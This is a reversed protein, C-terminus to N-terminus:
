ANRASRLFEGPTAGVLRKFHRSFQSQDSFGASAAVEALSFDSDLQLLQKAREVRRTLVYQHPPLGTAAKFQRAFHFPSLHAAAAMQELSLGALHAEVFDTVARLKRQPLTGQTRLPPVRHSALNRILHIALLNALSEAALRDGAAGATLEENVALMATRLAPIDLGDLPPLSVRAPDLECAEAAVRGVLGPELFVHLSDSHRSWRWRASSGAPVLLISGAPPPARRRVEEYHAEFDKPAHLLLLLSHHTLPPQIAENPPQNRYRLAELGTWQLRDSAAFTEGPFQKILELPRVLTSPKDLETTDVRGDVQGQM